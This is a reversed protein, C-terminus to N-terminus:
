RSARRDAAELRKFRKANRLLAAYTSGSAAITEQLYTFDFREGNKYWQGSDQKTNRNWGIILFMQVGLPDVIRAADCKFMRQYKRCWRRLASAKRKVSKM